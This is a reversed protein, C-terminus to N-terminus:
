RALVAARANAVFPTSSQHVVAVLFVREHICLNEIARIKNILSMRYVPADESSSTSNYQIGPNSRTSQPAM